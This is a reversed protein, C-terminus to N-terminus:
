ASPDLYEQPNEEGYRYAIAAGGAGTGAIVADTGKIGTEEPTQWSTGHTNSYALMVGRTDAWAAYVGGAADQSTSLAEAGIYSVLTENSIEVPAEFTKTTTNFPRYYVGVSGSIGGLGLGEDQLLGIGASGGSLVPAFANCAVQKFYGTKPWKSKEHLETPTGTAYSYGTADESTCSAEGDAGVVVVLYHGAPEGPDPIAALQSGTTLEYADYDGSTDVKPTISPAEKTLTFDTFGNGGTDNGYVAIEGPGLTTAGNQPMDGAGQSAALLVGGNAVSWAGGGAPSSWAVVGDAPYGSPVAAAEVGELEDLVVVTGDSEVVVRPSIEYQASAGAKSDTLTDPGAGGNCADGGAAVTCVEIAHGNAATWAVYTDGTGPDHAIAPQNAGAGLDIGPNPLPPPPSPPPPPPPTPTTTTQTPTSSTPGSTPGAGAPPPYLPPGPGTVEQTRADGKAYTRNGTVGVDYQCDQLVARNTIGEETCAATASQSKAPPETGLNFLQQPFDAITYSKTSKHPAYTFLSEHQAIRWSAGYEGYLVKEDYEINEYTYRTGNRGHFEDSLPEGANGLLGTIHGLRDHALEISLWLWPTYAGSGAGIPIGLLTKATVSSGDAWRVTTTSMEIGGRLPEESIKLSGGGALKASTEHTAHHNVYVKLSLGNTVDVEVTAQGVRMAVASVYAVTKSHPIPQQRAQVELDKSTTSKVLTFEGAAQFDFSKLGFAFNHPDGGSSAKAGSSGGTGGPPPQPCFGSNQAAFYSIEVSGKFEGTALGLMPEAPLPTLPPLTGPSGGECSAAPSTCGEGSCFVKGKLASDVYNNHVGFRGHVDPGLHIEILPELANPKVEYQATSYPELVVGAPADVTQVPAEPYSSGLSGTLPSDARWEAPAGPLNFASSGWSDLVSTEEGRVAARFASGDNLAVGAILIAPIRSWLAGRTVDQLHGWFGVADYSRTFLDTASSSSYETIAKFAYPIPTSPYLTLDVWRALGEIIWKDENSENETTVMGPEIQHEFCHFVEHVLVEQEATPQPLSDLWAKNVAIQCISGAREFPGNVKDKVNTLASKNFFPDSAWGVALKLKLPIGLHASILGAQAEAVAQLAPDPTISLGDAQAAAAPLLLVAVLAM